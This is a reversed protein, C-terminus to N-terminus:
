AHKASKPISVETVSMALAFQPNSEFIGVSDRTVTHTPSDRNFIDNEMPGFVADNAILCEDTM